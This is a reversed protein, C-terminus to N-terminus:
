IEKSQEWYRALVRWGLLGEWLRTEEEEPILSMFCVMWERNRWSTAVYRDAANQGGSFKLGGGVGKM